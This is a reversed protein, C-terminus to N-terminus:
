LTNLTKISLDEPKLWLDKDMEIDSNHQVCVLGKFYTLDETNALRFPLTIIGEIAKTRDRTDDHLLVEAVFFYIVEEKNNTDQNTDM